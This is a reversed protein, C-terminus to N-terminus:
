EIGAKWNPPELAQVPDKLEAARREPHMELDPCANLSIYHIRKVHEREL